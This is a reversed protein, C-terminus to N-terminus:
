RKKIDRGTGPNNLNLSKFFSLSITSTVARDKTFGILISLIQSTMDHVDPELCGKFISNRLLYKKLNNPVNTASVVLMICFTESFIAQWQLLTPGLGRKHIERFSACSM